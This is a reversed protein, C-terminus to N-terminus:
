LRGLEVRTADEPVASDVLLVDRPVENVAM